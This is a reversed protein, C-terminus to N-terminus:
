IRVLNAFLMAVTVPGVGGPVPTFFAAKQACEPVFDGNPYGVDICIVGESIMEPKILGESGTCSIIIDAQKIKEVDFDKRGMGITNEPLYKMLRSGVEGQNGIVVATSGEPQRWRGGLNPPLSSLPTCAFNLIEMVARVTAPMFESGERLGDVDKKPDILKILNDSDSFPLQIMIGDVNEDNNLQNILQYSDVPLQYSEFLIGLSEAKKKKINTYVVSGVDNPDLISVLKPKRPMKAVKERVEQEIKAAYMRGDFIIAM